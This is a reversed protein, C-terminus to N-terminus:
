QSATVDAGRRRLFKFAVVGVGLATFATFSTTVIGTWFPWKWATHNFTLDHAAEPRRPDYSVSGTEGVEPREDGSNGTFHHVTGDRDTFRLVARYTTGRGEHTIVRVVTGTTEVGGPVPETLTRDHLGGTVLWISMGLLFLIVVGSFGLRIGM